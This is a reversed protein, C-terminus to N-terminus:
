WLTQPEVHAIELDMGISVIRNLDYDGRIGVGATPSAPEVM